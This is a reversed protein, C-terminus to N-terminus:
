ITLGTAQVRESIRISTQIYQIIGGGFRINAGSMEARARGPEANEGQRTM